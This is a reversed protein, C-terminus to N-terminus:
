GETPDGAECISTAENQSALSLALLALPIIVNFDVGRRAGGREGVFWTSSHLSLLIEAWVQEHWPVWNSGYMLPTVTNGPDFNEFYGFSPRFKALNCWIKGFQARVNVGHYSKIVVLAYDNWNLKSFKGEQEDNHVRERLTVDRVVDEKPLEGTSTM